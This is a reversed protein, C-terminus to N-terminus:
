TGSPLHGAFLPARHAPRPRSPVLGRDLVRGKLARSDLVHRGAHRPSRRGVALLRRRAPEEVFRHAFAAVALAAVVTGVGAVHALVTHPGLVSVHQLATWYVELLPIHVLYLAYSVRGGHVALPQALVMAPGRDALALSGVLLPFLAVVAGGRGPGVWEGVVLGVAILPPLVAALVSAVRRVGADARIRRMAMSVLVGAAFGCLLRVLWSYPYYPSGTRLYAIAIPTMLAVAALILVPAPMRRLRHFALAAVPFLLYALWEASLSWTPGVWSAGDLYAHDWMQVGVLQRAWEGVTIPPQVAQFAVIGDHGLLLKALLWLGFVHLVVLYLPWMRCMRAWVFRCAAAPQLAPGLRDLYTHAIVFGSIVFFLDVGLAGQTALPGLVRNVAAVGPLPTFHFHFVVVWLAAVIRLGTLSKLEGVPAGQDGSPTTGLAATTVIVAVLGTAVATRTVGAVWGNAAV